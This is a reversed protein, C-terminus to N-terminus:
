KQSIEKEIIGRDLIVSDLIRYFTILHELIANWKNFLNVRFSDISVRTVRHYYM